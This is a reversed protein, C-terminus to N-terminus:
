INPNKHIKNTLHNSLNLSFGLISKSNLVVDITICIHVTDRESNTLSM